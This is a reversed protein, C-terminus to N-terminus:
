QSNRARYTWPKWPLSMGKIGLGHERMHEGQTIVMLNDPDNNKKNEDKHHVIEGPKLPRGLIGEAVVRHEHRGNRKVYWKTGRGRQLDGRLSASEKAIRANFEPGGRALWACRRSCYKGTTHKKPKFASSCIVCTNMSIRPNRTQIPLDDSHIRKPFFVSLNM